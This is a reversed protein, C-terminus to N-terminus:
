YKIIMIEMVISKLLIGMLMLEKGYLDFHLGKFIPRAVLCSKSFSRLFVWEHM